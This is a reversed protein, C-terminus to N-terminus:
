IALILYEKDKGTEDYVAKFMLNHITHKSEHADYSGYFSLDTREGLNAVVEQGEELSSVVGTELFLEALGGLSKRVKRFVIRGLIKLKFRKVGDEMAKKRWDEWQENTTYDPKEIGSLNIFRQRFEIPDVIKETEMKFLSIM